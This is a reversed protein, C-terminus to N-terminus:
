QGKYGNIILLLVRKCKEFDKELLSDYIARHAKVWVNGSEDKDEMRHEAKKLMYRRIPEEAVEFSMALLQNGSLRCLETHILLTQDITRLYSARKEEYTKLEDYAKVENEFVDCAKRLPELDKETVCKVALRACEVEIISRFEGISKMVEDSMYFDSIQSIHKKFNFAKVFTGEGDKTELVGLANLKQLAIRVTLRNVGFTEALASESPIKEGIPWTGDLVSDRIRDTVIDAASIKKIKLSKM